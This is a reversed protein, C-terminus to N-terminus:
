LQGEHTLLELNDCYKKSYECTCSFFILIKESFLKAM